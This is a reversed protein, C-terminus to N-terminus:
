LSRLDKKMSLCIEDEKFFGTNEIKLYGLKEYTAIAAINEKGTELFSYVYGQKVAIEELKKIIETAMGQKRHNKNVFVRKIEISNENIKKFSGCAIPKKNEIALLVVHPDTIKNYEKYKLAIEGHIDYYEQELAQVLKQFDTNSEDTLKLEMM